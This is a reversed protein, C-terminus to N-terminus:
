LEDCRKIYNYYPRQINSLTQQYDLFHISDITGISNLTEWAIETPIVLRCYLMDQSRFISM